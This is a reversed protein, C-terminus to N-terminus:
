MKDVYADQLNMESRKGGEPKPLKVLNLGLKRAMYDLPSVDGSAEMVSFLTEIGM